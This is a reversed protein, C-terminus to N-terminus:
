LETRTVVEQAIRVGQQKIASIIRPFLKTSMGIYEPPTVGPDLDKIVYQMAVAVSGTAIQMATWRGGPKVLTEYQARKEGKAAVVKLYVLDPVDFKLRSLLKATILRPPPDGQDSLFGLERLLRIKEVHSPWRLTKEYMTKVRGALTKLLTRLGDSYFAELTGVPSPVTEVESLPDVTAVAGDKLVRAPRTYEEILDVPSWTVSYGLPGVPREPIGGVYIGLEDVDGLEAVARGALMNSLGPAVGADPIYRAGAKAAVEHLAFPDEPYFSVDIVDLGAELARKSAKFSVAGPLANIVLDYGGLPVELADQSLAGPCGGAKDVAVVEHKSLMAYIYSGINGCGLLLVRV